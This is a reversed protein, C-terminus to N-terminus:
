RQRVPKRFKESTIHHGGCKPCHYARSPGGHRRRAIMRAARRADQRTPYIRKGTPCEDRM